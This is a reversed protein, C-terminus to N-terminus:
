AGFVDNIIGISKYMISVIAVSVGLIIMLFGLAGDFGTTGGLQGVSALVVTTIIASALNGIMTLVAGQSCVAAFKRVYRGGAGKWGDDSMLAFAIPLFAGRIFMELLRTFAVVYCIILLAKSALTLVGGLISVTIIATFAEGLSNINEAFKPTLKEVAANKDELTRNSLSYVVIADVIEDERDKKLDAKDQDSREKKAKGFEGVMQTMGGGFDIIASFIVSSNIILFVAAAFKAFHKIFIDLTLREQMGLEITAIFFFLAAIAVATSQITQSAIGNSVYNELVSYVKGLATTKGDLVDPAFVSAMSPGLEFADSCVDLIRGAELSAAVEEFM